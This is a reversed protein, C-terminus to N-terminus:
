LVRANKWHKWWVQPDQLFLWFTCPSQIELFSRKLMAKMVHAERERWPQRVHEGGRGLSWDANWPHGSPLEEALLYQRAGLPYTMESPCSGRPKGGGPHPPKDNAASDPKVHWWAVAVLHSTVKPNEAECVSILARHSGHSLLPFLPFSPSCRGDCILCAQLLM